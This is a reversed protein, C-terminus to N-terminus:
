TLILTRICNEDEDPRDLHIVLADVEEKVTSVRSKTKHDKIHYENDLKAIDETKDTKVGELTIPKRDEKKADMKARQVYLPAPPIEVFVNSARRARSGQELKVKTETSGLAGHANVKSQTGQEVLEIKDDSKEQPEEEKKIAWKINKRERKNWIKEWLREPLPRMDDCYREDAALRRIEQQTYGYFPKENDDEAEINLKN